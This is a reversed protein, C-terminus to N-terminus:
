STAVAHGGSSSPSCGPKVALASFDGLLGTVLVLEVEVVSGTVEVVVGESIVM